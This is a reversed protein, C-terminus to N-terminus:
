DMGWRDEYAARCAMCGCQGLCEKECTPKCTCAIGDYRGDPQYRSIGQATPHTADEAYTDTYDDM